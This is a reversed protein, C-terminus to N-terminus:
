GEQTVLKPRESYRLIKLMKLCSQELTHYRRRRKDGISLLIIETDSCTNGPHALNAQYDIELM